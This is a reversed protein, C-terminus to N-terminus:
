VQIFRRHAGISLDITRCNRGFKRLYLATSLWRFGTWLNAHGNYLGFHILPSRLNNPNYFKREQGQEKVAWTYVVMSPAYISIM